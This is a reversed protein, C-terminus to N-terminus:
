VVAMQALWVHMTKTGDRLITSTGNASTMTVTMSGSVDAACTFTFWCRYWGNIPADSGSATVNAGINGAAGTATNFYATLTLGFNVASLLLWPATGGKMYVSCRHVTSAVLTLAASALSCAGVTGVNNDTMTDANLNGEPDNLANATVVATTTNWLNFAEPNAVRNTNPERFVPSVAAGYMRKQQRRLLLM